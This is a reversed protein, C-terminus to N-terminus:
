IETRPTRASTSFPTVDMLSNAFSFTNEGKPLIFFFIFMSVTISIFTINARLILSTIIRERKLLRQAQLLYRIDPTM